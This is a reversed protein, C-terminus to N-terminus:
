GKWGLAAVGADICPVLLVNVALVAISARVMGRTAARGISESSRDVTLGTRCGVLGVVAGFVATKLTAPVIMSLRLFTLSRQWYAEATLGGAVVEAALGGFLAAADLVVTLLPLALACALVRPVVLAPVAPTGLVELADVQESAVMSGLEAAVGAGMRGAVLLGALIPGTEALVAVALVSPLLAESGYTQLLRRTQLWSVLGVSLGAATVLPLSGWM